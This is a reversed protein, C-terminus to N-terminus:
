NQKPELNILNKTPYDIIEDTGFYYVLCLVRQTKESFILM